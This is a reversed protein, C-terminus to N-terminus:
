SAAIKSATASTRGALRTSKSWRRRASRAKAPLSSPWARAAALLRQPL